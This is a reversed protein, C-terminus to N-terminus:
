VLKKKIEPFDYYECYNMVTQPVNIEVKGPELDKKIIWPTKHIGFDLAEGIYREIKGLIEKHENNLPISKIIKLDEIEDETNRDIDAFHIGDGAKPAKINKIGELKKRLNREKEVAEQLNSFIKRKRELLAKESEPPLSKLERGLQKAVLPYLDLLSRTKFYNFVDKDGIIIEM